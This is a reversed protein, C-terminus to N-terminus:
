LLGGMIALSTAKALKEALEDSTDSQEEKKLQLGSKVVKNIIRDAEDSPIGHEVITEKVASIICAIEALFTMGSGNLEVEGKDCKIM